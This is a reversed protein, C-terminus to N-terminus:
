RGTLVGPVGAVAAAFAWVSEPLLLNSPVHPAAHLRVARQDLLGHPATGVRKDLYDLTVLDSNMSEEGAPSSALDSIVQEALHPYPRKRV